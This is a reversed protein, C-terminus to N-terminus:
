RRAVLGGVYGLVCGLVVVFAGGAPGSGDALASSGVFTAVVVLVGLMAMVRTLRGSRGTLGFVMVAAVALLVLGISAVNEVGGADLPIPIGFEPHAGAVEAAVQEATLDFASSSSGGLFPLLSGLLMVIGGLLTLLLRAVGRRSPTLQVVTGDARTDARGDSAVVTVSRTVELGSPTRPATVDVTVTAQRGPEVVLTAPTFTMRLSRESDHGSVSLRAPTTGRRNDIVATIRGRTRSGLRLVSPELRVALMDIAAHSATQSLMVPTDARRGAGDAVVISVSRELQTGPDPPPADLRVQTVQEGGPPLRLTREAWTARVVNEADSSSLEVQAWTNTGSNSVVVRCVGSASDRLRLRTPEVRLRLPATVAPVTVSLPLDRYASSDTTNSVRLVLPLRQARPLEQSVIGMEVVVSGSTSPLLEVRSPKIELWPPTGLAIVLYSDVVASENTVDVSIMTPAGDVTVSAEAAEIGATFPGRQAFVRPLPPAGHEQSEPLTAATENPPALGVPDLGRQTAQERWGLYSNCTSCFQAEPANREGCSSCVTAM